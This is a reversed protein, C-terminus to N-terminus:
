CRRTTQSCMRRSSRTVGHERAIDALQQLMRSAIGQGRHNEAVVFAVEASASTRIYQALAVVSEEGDHRHTAVLVAKRDDGPATLWRLERESLARKAFFFRQYVSQPHLARFAGVIRDRDEPRAARIMAGRPHTHHSVM